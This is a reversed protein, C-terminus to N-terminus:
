KGITKKIIKKFGLHQHDNEAVHQTLESEYEETQSSGCRQFYPVNKKTKKKKGLFFNRRQGRSM